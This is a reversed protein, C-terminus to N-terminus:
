LTVNLRHTLIYTPLFEWNNNDNKQWLELLISQNFGVGNFQVQVPESLWTENLKLTNTYNQILTANHVGTSPNITSNQDGQYIKVMYETNDRYFHQVQFYITVNHGVQIQTQYNGMEFQDNLLSFQVFEEEPKFINFAIFGSVIIISSILIVRTLRELNQERDLNNDIKDSNEVMQNGEM